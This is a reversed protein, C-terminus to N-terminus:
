SLKGHCCNGIPVQPLASRFYREHLVVVPAVRQLPRQTPQMVLHRQPRLALEHPHRAARDEINRDVDPTTGGAEPAM